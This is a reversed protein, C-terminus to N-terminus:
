RHRCAANEACDVVGLVRGGATLLPGARGKTYRCPVGRAAQRARRWDTSPTARRIAAPTAARPRWLCVCAGDAFQVNQRDLTGDITALMIASLPTQLLPLVAQTEPDGFRANYEVVKPGDPTLMLGVYLVGTFPRGERQMAQVTPMM